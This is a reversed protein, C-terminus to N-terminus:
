VTMDLICIGRLSTTVWLQNYDFAGSDMCLCVDPTGIVDKAQHLLPILSASGSEEEAEIVLCIRPMKVGQQQGIKVALMCSFASYGDDASGRGYMCGDIIVPDTPNKDADWGEGYPQKDIHGYVMVNRTVGESPEVVYTILPMGSETKFIKQSLGKIQLKQIYSDVLNIAQELKGNTLYESDVM